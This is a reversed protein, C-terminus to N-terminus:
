LVAVTAGTTRRAVRECAIAAEGCVDGIESLNQAIRDVRAVYFTRNFHGDVDVTVVRRAGFQVPTNGVQRSWIVVARSIMAEVELNGFRVAIPTGFLHVYVTDHAVSHMQQIRAVRCKVSVAVGCCASVEVLLVDSRQKQLTALAVAM